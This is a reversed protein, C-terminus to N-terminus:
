SSHVGEAAAAVLPVVLAVERPAVAGALRDGAEAAVLSVAVGEEEGGKELVVGEEEHPAAVDEWTLKELFSQLVESRELPNEPHGAFSWHNTRPWPFRNNTDVVLMDVGEFPSIMTANQNLETPVPCVAAPERDMCSSVALVFVCAVFFDIRSM